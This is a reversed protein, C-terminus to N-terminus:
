APRDALPHPTPAHEQEQGIADAFRRLLRAFEAKDRAPWAVLLDQLRARKAEALRQILERGAPTLRVRFARGDLPDATRAVLGEAEVQQVKRTVAPPDIALREALQGLRLDGDCVLLQHLLAGGARDIEVGAAALLREFARSRTGAHIVADLAEAIAAVAPDGTRDACWKAQMEPTSRTDIATLEAM